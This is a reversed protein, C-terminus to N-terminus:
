FFSDNTYIGNSHVNNEDQWFDMGRSKGTFPWVFLLHMEFPFQLSLSSGSFAGYFCLIWSGSRATTAGLLPYSISQRTSFWCSWTQKGNQLHICSQTLPEWSNCVMKSDQVYNHLCKCVIQSDVAITFSENVSRKAQELHTCENAKFDVLNRSKCCVNPWHRPNSEESRGLHLVINDSYNKALLPLMHWDDIGDM